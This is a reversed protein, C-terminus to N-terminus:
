MNMRRNPNLVRYRVRRTKKTKTCGAAGHTIRLGKSWMPVTFKQLLIM